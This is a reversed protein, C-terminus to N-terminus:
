RYSRSTRELLPREDRALRRPYTSGLSSTNVMNFFKGLDEILLHIATPFRNLSYQKEVYVVKCIEASIM